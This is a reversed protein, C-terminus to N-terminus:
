CADHSQTPQKGGSKSLMGMSAVTMTGLGLLDGVNGSKSLMGMSAVTMTGLGLLDGVNSSKSLMGM